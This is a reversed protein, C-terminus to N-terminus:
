RSRVMGIIATLIAGGVGSSILNKIVEGIDSGQAAAAVDGASVAGGTMRQVVQGLILGGIAGAISNGSSGLSKDKLVSGAANGGIAGAALQIIISLLDM